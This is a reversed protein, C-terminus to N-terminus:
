EGQLLYLVWKSIGVAHDGIRELYKAIMLSDVASEGDIDGSKIKDIIINKENNFYMDVEDDMEIVRKSLEADRNVFSDISENVMVKVKDAMLFINDYEYGLKINGMMIVEAIDGSNDGIREADTVMKLVSSITRLDGAIPSELLLLRFCKNEVEREMRKIEDVISFITDSREKNKLISISKSIADEALTSVKIMMKELESLENNFKERM